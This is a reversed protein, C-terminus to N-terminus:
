PPSLYDQAAWGEAGDAPDRLRWWILEDATRPGELITLRTGDSITKLTTSQLGPDSRLRLSSGTGTVIAFGGIYLGQPAATPPLTPRATATPVIPSPTITIVIATSSAISTQDIPHLGLYLGFGILGCLGIIFGLAPGLWVPGGSPRRSRAEIRQIPETDLRANL